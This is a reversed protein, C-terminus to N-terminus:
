NRDKYAIEVSAVTQCDYNFGKPISENAVL